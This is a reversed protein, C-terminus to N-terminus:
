DGTIFLTITWYGGQQQLFMRYDVASRLDNSSAYGRLGDHTMIAGTVTDAHIVTEGQQLNRLPQGDSDTFEADESVVVLYDFPTVAPYQRRIWNDEPLPQFSCPYVVAVTRGTDDKQAYGGIALLRELVLWFDSTAPNEDLGWEEIFAQRGGGGGFDFKIDPSLMPAVLSFDRAALAQKLHQEVMVFNPLSLSLNGCPLRHSVPEPARAQPVPMAVPAQPAAQVAPAPQQAQPAPAAQQEEQQDCATLLLACLLAATLQRM